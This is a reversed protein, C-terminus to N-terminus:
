ADVKDPNERIWKDAWERGQGESATAALLLFLQQDTRRELLWARHNRETALVYPDAGTLNESPTEQRVVTYSM